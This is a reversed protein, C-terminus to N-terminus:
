RRGSAAQGAEQRPRSDADADKPVVAIRTAMKRGAVLDYAARVRMGERLDTVKGEKGEAIEVKTDKTVYLTAGFIGLMESTLHVSVGDDDVKKVSAELDVSTRPRAAPPPPSSGGSLAWAGMGLLALIPISFLVYWRLQSQRQRRRQRQRSADESGDSPRPVLVIRRADQKRTPGSEPTVGSPSTM